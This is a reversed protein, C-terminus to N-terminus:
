ATPPVRGSYSQVAQFPVPRCAMRNEGQATPPRRGQVAANARRGMAAPQSSEHLEPVNTMFLILKKVASGDAECGYQCRDCSAKTIGHEKMLNEIIDTQWSSAHAPHERIFYRGNKPQERNLEVCFELHM